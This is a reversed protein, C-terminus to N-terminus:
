GPRRSVSRRRRLLVSGGFIGLAIGPLALVYPVEPTGTGPGTGTDGATPSVFFPVSWVEHGADDIDWGVLLVCAHELNCVPHHHHTERLTFADPLAYIPYGQYNASGDRNAAFLLKQRTRRDCDYNRPTKGGSATSCEEITLHAGPRFVTNPAVSVEVLQGSLYPGPNPFPSLTVIPPSVVGAVATSSGFGATAVVMGFSVMLAFGVRLCKGARWTSRLDGAVARRSM